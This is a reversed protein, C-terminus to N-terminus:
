DTTGQNTQSNRDTVAKLPSADAHDGPKRGRPTRLNEPYADPDELRMLGDLIMDSVIEAYLFVGDANKVLRALYTDRKPNTELLSKLRAELYARIDNTQAERRETLRIVRGPTLAQTVCTEERSLM